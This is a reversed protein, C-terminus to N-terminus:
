RKDRRFVAFLIGSVLVGPYMPDLGWIYGPYGDVAPYASGYLYWCISVIMPITMLFPAYELKIRYLGAILPFLLAPM